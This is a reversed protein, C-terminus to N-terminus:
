SRVAALEGRLRDAEAEAREARAQHAASAATLAEARDDYAKELRRLEEAHRRAEDEKAQLAAVAREEARGQEIEAHQQAARAAAVDEDARQKVEEFLKGMAEVLTNLNEPEQTTTIADFVQKMTEETNTQETTPESQEGSM